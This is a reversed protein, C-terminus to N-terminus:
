KHINSIDEMSAFETNATERTVVCCLDHYISLCAFAGGAVVLLATAAMFGSSSAAGDGFVDDDDARGGYKPTPRTNKRVGIDLEFESTAAAEPAGDAQLARRLRRAGDGFQMSGTGSGVVVGTTSYFAAFLMTEFFCVEDGNHCSLSTLGNTAEENYGIVAAQTIADRSFTFYDLSRMFIGNAVAEADPKVCVRIVSGQNRTATLDDGNLAENAGNCQYGDLLYVQNATDVIKEKPAVNVTGISFGDTFDVFLTVLTELFNVEKEGSFNLISYRVCFDVTATVAGYSSDEEAYIASNKITAPVVGITLKQDRVGEGNSLAVFAGVLPDKNSTLVSAPVEVGESQCGPSKWLTYTTMSDAIFDSVVYDLDFGHSDYAFTPDTIKWRKALVQLGREEAALTSAVSVVFIISFFKM